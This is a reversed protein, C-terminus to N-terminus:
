LYRSLAAALGYGLLGFSMLLGLLLVAARVRNSTFRSSDLEVLLKLFRNIPAHRTVRDATKKDGSGVRCERQARM